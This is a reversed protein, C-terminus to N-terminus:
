LARLILNADGSLVGLAFSFDASCGQFESMAGHFAARMTVHPALHGATQAWSGLAQWEPSSGTM